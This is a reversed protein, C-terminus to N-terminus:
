CFSHCHKAGGKVTAVVSWSSGDMDRTCRLAQELLHNGVAVALQLALGRGQRRQVLVAQLQAALGDVM